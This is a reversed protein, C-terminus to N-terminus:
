VLGSLNTLQATTTGPPHSTPGPGGRAGLKYGASGHSTGDKATAEDKLNMVEGYGDWEIM